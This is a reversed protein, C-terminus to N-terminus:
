IKISEQKLLPQFYNITKANLKDYIFLNKKNKGFVIRKYELINSEIEENIIIHEFFQYQELLPKFKRKGIKGLCHYFLFELEDKTFQARFINVYRQKDFIISKDIFKLVQYAHGFYAGTNSEFHRNLKEYNKEYLYDFFIIFKKVAYSGKFEGITVVNNEIYEPFCHYSIDNIFVTGVEAGQSVDVYLNNKIENFLKNLQFFSNEFIQLNTAKNQLELTKSQSQQAIRSEKLEERTAQLENKSMQLSDSQLKITYLLAIFAFFALIPNLTGGVFDGFQAWVEQKTSIGLYGFNQIYFGVVFAIFLISIIGLFTLLKKIAM